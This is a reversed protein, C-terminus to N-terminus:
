KCREIRRDPGADPAQIAPDLGLNNPETKTAVRGCQRPVRTETQIEAVPPFRVDGTHGAIGQATQLGSIWVKLLNKRGSSHDLKGFRMPTPTPTSNEIAKQGM